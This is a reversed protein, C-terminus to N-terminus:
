LLEAREDHFDAAAFFREYCKPNFWTTYEEEPRTREELTKWVDEPVDWDGPELNMRAAVGAAKAMQRAFLNSAGLYRM